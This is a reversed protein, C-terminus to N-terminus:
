NARLKILGLDSCTNYIAPHQLALHLILWDRSLGLMIATFFLQQITENHLCFSCQKSGGWNRRALNDKM